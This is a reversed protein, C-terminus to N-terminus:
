GMDRLRQNDHEEIDEAVQQENEHEIEHAKMGKIIDEMNQLSDRSMDCELIGAVAVVFMEYAVLKHERTICGEESTM